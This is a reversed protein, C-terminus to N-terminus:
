RPEKGGDVASSPITEQSLVVTKLGLRGIQILYSELLSACFAAALPKDTGDAPQSTWDHMVVVARDWEEAEALRGVAAGVERQIQSPTRCHDILTWEEACLSWQVAVTGPNWGSVAARVAPVDVGAGFPFRVLPAAGTPRWHRLLSETRELQDVIAEPTLTDLAQHDYGHSFLGHGAAAIRDALHPFKALNIGCAFFSAKADYAALVDLLALTTDPNPGDDITIAITGPQDLRYLTPAAIM